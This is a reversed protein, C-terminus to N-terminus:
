KMKRRLGLLGALGSGILLMSAPEPVEPYRIADARLLFPMNVFGSASNDHLTERIGDGDLDVWATPQVIGGGMFSAHNLFDPDEEGTAPNTNNMGARATYSFAGAQVTLEGYARMQFDEVYITAMFEGNNYVDFGFDFQLQGGMAESGFPDSTYESGCWGYGDSMARPQFSYKTSYMDDPNTGTTDTYHFFDYYGFTMDQRRAYYNGDHDVSLGFHSGAPSTYGFPGFQVQGDLSANTYQYGPNSFDDRMLTSPASNAINDPTIGDAPVTYVDQRYHLNGPDFGQSFDNPTRGGPAYGLNNFSLSGNDWNRVYTGTGPDYSETYAALSNGAGLLVLCCTVASYCFM